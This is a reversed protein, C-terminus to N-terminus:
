IYNVEAKLEIGFKAKVDAIVADALRKIDEGKAGGKNVLVLAQKDYVASPGLSRGKWGCQEILWGAPIKVKGNDSKYSPVSPYRGVLGEYDSASVVPNMFFSGANGLVQPDPLKGERITRVANRINKLTPGGTKECEERLTGYGLVPNAVTSLRFTVHVVAYKGKLEDKFISHRYGYRCEDKRFTRERGDELSVAHVFEIRDGAEVGYAGVNQVASAGVEGPIATLNEVGWYGRDVCWGVFDDWVIGSGVEVLVDNGEFAVESISNICSHFVTGAYDQMFLLNSGGGIALFPRRSVAILTRLEEVSSYEALCEAKVDMGFTNRGLLSCHEIVKM